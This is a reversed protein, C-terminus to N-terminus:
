IHTTPTPISPKPSLLTGFSLKRLAFRFKSIDLRVRTFEQKVTALDKRVQALVTKTTGSPTSTNQLLQTDNALQTSITQLHNKADDLTAQATSVDKGQSKLNDLMAQTASITSNMTTRLNDLKTITRLLADKPQIKKLPMLDDRFSGIDTKIDSLTTSQNIQQKLATLQNIASQIQNTLSTKEAGSLNPNSMFTQLKKNLLAIQDDVKQLAKQKLANIDPTPKPTLFSTITVQGNTTITQQVSNHVETHSSSQITQHIEVNSEAAFVTTPPFFLIGTIFFFM